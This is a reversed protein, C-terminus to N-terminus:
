TAPTPVECEGPMGHCSMEMTTVGYSGQFDSGYLITYQHGGGDGSPDLAHVPDDPRDIEYLYGGHFPKLGPGALSYSLIFGPVGAAITFPLQAVGGTDALPGDAAEVADLQFGMYEAVAGGWSHSAIIVNRAAGTASPHAALWAQTKAYLDKADILASTTTYNLLSSFISGTAASNTGGLIDVHLHIGEYSVYTFATLKTIGAGWLGFSLKGAELDANSFGAKHAAGIAQEFVIADGAVTANQTVDVVPNDGGIGEIPVALYQYSGTGPVLVILDGTRIEQGWLQDLLQPPDAPPEDPQAACGVLAVWVAVLAHRM